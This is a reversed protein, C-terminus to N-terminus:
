ADEEAAGSDAVVLERMLATAYSGAPLAFSLLLDDHEWQWQLTQVRIRLARRDQELGARELGACIEGYAAVCDEELRRAADASALPGRGWLPGTPHVDLARVRAPVEADDPTALFWARRGDLQLADGPVAREWSGETVRRTLVQNFLFSRLASLYLGRQSRDLRPGEGRLMAVAADVNGGDRGFRQAGFYNPIGRAAIARLRAEIGSRDGNFARLRLVFENGRLAGRKLKRSHRVARLIDVGDIRATNWEPAAKGPLQVSYWQETVARRDKLGAFSVERPAVGAFRALQRATWETNANRKRVWLWVHEGAGDPECIPLERVLFDEPEVRLRGTGVPGGFALPLDAVGADTPTSTCSSM